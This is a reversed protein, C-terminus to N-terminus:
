VPEKPRRRYVPRPSRDASLGRRHHHTPTRGDPTAPPTAPSQARGPPTGPFPAVIALFAAALGLRKM